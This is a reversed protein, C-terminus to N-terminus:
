ATNASGRPPLFRTGLPQHPTISAGRSGLFNPRSFTSVEGGAILTRYRRREGDAAISEPGPAPRGSRRDRTRSEGSPLRNSGMRGKSSDRGPGGTRDMRSATRAAPKSYAKVFASNPAGGVKAVPM